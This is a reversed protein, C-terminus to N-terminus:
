GCVAPGARVVQPEVKTAISEHIVGVSDSPDVVDRTREKAVRVQVFFHVESVEKGQDLPKPPSPPQASPLPM